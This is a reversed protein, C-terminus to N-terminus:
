ITQHAMVIMLIIKVQKFYSESIGKLKFDFEPKRILDKQAALRANFTSAAMTNFEPTTIYKNHDHDTIKKEIDSIKTNYDTKKVLGSDDPIKNEVVTLASKTALGSVDPIKSEVATLASKKVM